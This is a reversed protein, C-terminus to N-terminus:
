LKKRPMVKKLLVTNCYSKKLDLNTTEAWKKTRKEKSRHKKGSLDSSCDIRILINASILLRIILQKCEIVHSNKLHQLRCKFVTTSVGMFFM